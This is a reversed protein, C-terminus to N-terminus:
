TRPGHCTLPELTARLEEVHREQRDALAELERIKELISAPATGTSALDVLNDIKAQTAALAKEAQIREGPVTQQARALEAKSAEILHSVVEPRDFYRLM